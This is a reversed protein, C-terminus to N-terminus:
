VLHRSFLYILDLPFLSFRPSLFEGAVAKYV